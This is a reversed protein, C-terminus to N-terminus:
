KRYRKERYIDGVRIPWDRAWEPRDEMLMQFELASGFGEPIECVIEDYVHLVIPYGAKELLISAHRLLDACAAQTVNEVLKGGWTRMRLWKSVPGNKPNTNWGEYSLSLGFRGADAPNLRPNHYTILRGSPLRMQLVRGEAKFAVGYRVDHWRGPHQVAKIAMGEMGFLEPVWNRHQGGWFERVAPSADRWASAADVMEQDTMFEGAGFQDLAGVWGGYGLALEMVKGKKRAPHHSGTDKRHQMMEEFPIKFATSASMEYIKGHGKFVDMRWQEGALFALGVAEISSYDGAILEHGPAARIMGRLTSSVVGLAKGKGYISEVLPASRMEMVSLAQETVDVGWESPTDSFATSTGCYPCEDLGVGHYQECGSNGCKQVPEGSNPLNTLQVGTSICRGTRAGHYTFLNRARGDPSTKVRMAYLKKVAASSADRRIELVRRVDPPLLPNKLTDAITEEDLAGVDCRRELLWARMDKIKSPGTVRGGTLRRLEEEAQSFVQEIVAISNEVARRDLFVGRANIEQDAQWYSLEEGILDPVSASVAQEARVDDDCYKELANYDEPTGRGGPPVCLKKILSTGIKDKQVPLELVVGVAALGGPLGYARSKAASCRWQKPPVRPWGYKPVCVYEWIAREFGANHAEVLGGGDIHRLLDPPYTHFLGPKWRRIGKGDHLDYSLTIVRATPHMAYTAMGVVEIGKKGKPSGPIGVWEGEANQTYGAESYTEFDITAIVAM